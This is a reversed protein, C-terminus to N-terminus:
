KQKKSFYIKYFDTLTSKINDYKMGEAKLVKSMKTGNYTFIFHRYSDQSVKIFQKPKLFRFINSYKAVLYNNDQQYNEDLYKFLKYGDIGFIEIGKSEIEGSELEDNDNGEAEAYAQKIGTKLSEIFPPGFFGPYQNNTFEALNGKVDGSKLEEILKKYSNEEELDNAIKARRVGEEHSNRRDYYKKELHIELDSIVKLCGDFFYSSECHNENIAKRSEMLFYRKLDNRNIEIAHGLMVIKLFDIDMTTQNSRFSENRISDTPSNSKQDDTNKYIYKEAATGNLRALHRELLEIYYDRHPTKPRDTQIALIMKEIYQIQGERPTKNVELFDLIERNVSNITWEQDKVSLNEKNSKKEHKLHKSNKSILNKAFEFLMILGFENAIFKGDYYGGQILEDKHTEYYGNKLRCYYHEPKLEYTSKRTPWGRKEFSDNIFAPDKSLSEKKDIETMWAKLNTETFQIYKDLFTSTHHLFSLRGDCKTLYEFGEQPTKLKPNTITVEMDPDCNAHEKMNKYDPIADKLKAIKKYPETLKKIEDYYKFTEKRYQSIHEFFEIDVFYKKSSEEM